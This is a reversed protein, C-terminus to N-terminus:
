KTKIKYLREAGSRVADAVNRDRMLSRLDRVALRSLLKVAMGVPVRPNKVLSLCIKYKNIWDRRRSIESLVEDVVSRSSAIQAVEDESM